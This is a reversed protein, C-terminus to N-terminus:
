TFITEIQVFLNTLIRRVSVNRKSFDKLDNARSNNLNNIGKKKRLSNFAQSTM